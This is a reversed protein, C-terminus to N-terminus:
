VMEKMVFPVNKLSGKLVRYVSLSSIIRQIKHLGNQMLVITALNV